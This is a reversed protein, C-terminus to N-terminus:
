VPGAPTCGASRQQRLGAGAHLGGNSCWGAGRGQEGVHMICMSLMRERWRTGKGQMGAPTRLQPWLRARSWGRRGPIGWAWPLCPSGVPQCSPHVPLAAACPWMSGARNDGIGHRAIPMQGCCSTTHPPNHACAEGRSPDDHVLLDVCGAGQLSRWTNLAEWGAHLWAPVRELACM